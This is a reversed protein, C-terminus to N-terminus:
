KKLNMTLMAQNIMDLRQNKKKRPSFTHTLTHNSQAEFKKMTRIKNSFYIKKKDIRHNIIKESAQVFNLLIENCLVDDFVIHQHYIPDPM